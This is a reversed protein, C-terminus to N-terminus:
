VLYEQVADDIDRMLRWKPNVPTGKRVRLKGLLGVTAWSARASRPEYTAEPDFAPNLIPDGDPGLIPRGFSDKLWKQKWQLEAHDGVVSPNASIVGILDEPAGGLVIKDGQLSVAYGVRDEAQPNGDLWEFWEAYDAGGGSWSGDAFAQGDGRMIFTINSGNSTTYIAHNFASNAARNVNGIYQVGDYSTSQAQANFNYSTFGTQTHTSTVGNSTSLHGSALTWYASITGFGTVAAAVEAQTNTFAASTFNPFQAKLVGKILRLHDDGQVIGDTAGPNGSNLDAIYSATEIPM